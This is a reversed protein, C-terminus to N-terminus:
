AKRDYSNDIIQQIILLDEKEINLWKTSGFFGSVKIKLDLDTGKLIPEPLVSFFENKIYQSM